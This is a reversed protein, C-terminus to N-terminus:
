MAWHKGFRQAYSNQYMKQCYEKDRPSFKEPESDQELCNCNRVLEYNGCCTIPFAQDELGLKCSRRIKIRAMPNDPDEEVDTVSYFPCEHHCYIRNTREDRAEYEDLEDPSKVKIEKGNELKIVEM